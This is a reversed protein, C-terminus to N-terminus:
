RDGPWSYQKGGGLGWGSSQVTQKKTKKVKRRRVPRRSKKAPKPKVSAPAAAPVPLPEPHVASLAHVEGPGDNSNLAITISRPITPATPSAFSPSGPSGPNAAAAVADAEVSSITGPAMPRITGPKSAEDAREAQTQANAKTAAEAAAIQLKQGEIAQQRLREERKENIKRIMEAYAYRNHRARETASWPMARCACGDVLKKRYKFASELQDYRRGSMDVMAKVNDSHKPLYYLKGGGCRSSCAKADKRFRSRSASASIPFYYGDCTRVCVTRYYGGSSYKRQDRPGIDRYPSLRLSRQQGPYATASSQSQTRSPPAKKAPASSFIGGFWSQFMSQAQLSTGSSLCLLAALVFTSTLHFRSRM